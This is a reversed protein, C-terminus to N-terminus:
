GTELRKSGYYYANNTQWKPQSELAGEFGDYTWSKPFNVMRYNPFSSETLSGYRVIIQANEQSVKEQKTKKTKKTKNKKTKAIIWLRGDKGKRRKGLKEAHACWGLGTPSAENGDYRRTKDNKCRPM